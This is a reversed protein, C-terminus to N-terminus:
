FKFGLSSGAYPTFIVPNSEIVIFNGDTLNISWNKEYLSDMMAAYDEGLFESYISSLSTDAAQLNKYEYIDGSWSIDTLSENARDGYSVEAHGQKPTITWHGAPIDKGIRYFGTPVEVEQWEDSEWMAAQIEQQLAILESLSLGALDLNIDASACGMALLALCVLMCVFKRM